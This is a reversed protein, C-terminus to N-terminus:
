PKIYKSLLIRLLEAEDYELHKNKRQNFKLGNGTDIVVMAITGKTSENWQKGYNYFVDYITKSPSVETIDLDYEYIGNIKIKEM